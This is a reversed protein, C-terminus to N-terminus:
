RTVGDEKAAEQAKKDDPYWYHLHCSECAKDIGIIAQFLANTDKADVAKMALVAADQLSRARRLFDPRGADLLKQIEEPEKEVQPNRSRDEPRAVRRGEMVLLNQAELLVLLNRRVEAWEADTQPAKRTIGREDAIEQVSEFVFDGSPDIMSEMIDKITAPRLLEPAPSTKTCAAELALLCAVLGWHCSKM